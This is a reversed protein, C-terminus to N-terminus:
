EKKVDAKKQREHTTQERSKADHASRNGQKTKGDQKDKSMGNTMATERLLFLLTAVLGAQSVGALLCACCFGARCERVPARVLPYQRHKRATM